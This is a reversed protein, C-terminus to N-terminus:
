RAWGWRLIVLERHGNKILVVPANETPALNYRKTFEVPEPPGNDAGVGGPPEGLRSFEVLERWTLLHTYRGCM